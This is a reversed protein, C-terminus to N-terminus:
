QEKQLLTGAFEKKLKLNLILCCQELAVCFVAEVSIGVALIWNALIWSALQLLVLLHEHKSVLFWVSVRFLQSYLLLLKWNTQAVICAFFRRTM